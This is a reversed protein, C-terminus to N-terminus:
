IGDETIRILFFGPLKVRRSSVGGVRGKIIANFNETKRRLDRIVSGLRKGTSWVTCFM